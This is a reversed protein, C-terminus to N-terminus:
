GNTKGGSASRGAPAKDPEAAAARRESAPRHRELAEQDDSQKRLWDALDKAGRQGNADLMSMNSSHEIRNAMSEFTEGTSQQLQVYNEKTDGSLAM